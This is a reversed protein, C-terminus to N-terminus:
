KLENEIKQLARHYIQRLSQSTTKWRAALDQLVDPPLRQSGNTPDYFQMREWVVDQERQDLVREVADRVRKAEDLTGPDSGRSTVMGSRTEIDLPMERRKEQGRLAQLVIRQAVRALWARVHRRVQEPAKSNGPHFKAAAHVFVHKFTESVVNEVGAEGGLRNGCARRCAAYLFQAHRRYLEAWAERALEPEEGRWSIQVLLDADNDSTLDPKQHDAVTETSV